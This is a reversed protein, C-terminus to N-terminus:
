RVQQRNLLEDIKAKGRSIKENPLPSAKDAATLNDMGYEKQLEGLPALSGQTVANSFVPKKDESTAQQLNQVGTLGLTFYRNSIRKLTEPTLNGLRESIALYKSIEPDYMAAKWRQMAAEKSQGKIFASAFQIGITSKSARGEGMARLRAAASAVSQGLVNEVKSFVNLNEDTASPLPVRRIIETWKSLLKIDELHKPTFVMQLSKEHDQLFDQLQQSDNVNVKDWVARRLGAAAEPAKDTANLLQQMLAPRKLVNDLVQEPNQKGSVVNDITKALFSNEVKERRLRLENQRMSIASNVQGIDEIRSKLEPFENLISDHLRMWTKYKGLDIVGDRVTAQRMSDLVSGELAQYAEADTGFTENFQRAASVAGPKFFESAVKEDPLAYFGGQNSKEVKELVGKEFRDIFDSKYRQRFQGYRSILDPDKESLSSEIFNDLDKQLVVLRRKKQGFGMREAQRISEGLEERYTKIDQFTVKNEPLVTEPPNIKAGFSDTGKRVSEGKFKNLIELEASPLSRAMAFLEGEKLDDKITKRWNIFEDTLDVESLNLQKALGRMEESVGRRLDDYRNRLIAGSGARDVEPLANAANERQGSAAGEAREIRDKISSLRGSAKDLIFEPDPSGQPALASKYRDIAAEQGQQQQLRAEVELPSMKAEVAQQTAKLGPSDTRNGLPANFEPFRKALDESEALSAKAAPTLESQLERAVSNQAIANVAPSLEDPGAVFYKSLPVKRRITDAREQSLKGATYQRSIEAGKKVVKPGPLVSAVGGAASPAFGGAIGALVQGTEGAGAERAVGAATGAAAASGIDGVAARLPSKASAMASEQLARKLAGGSAKGGANLLQSGTRLGAGMPVLTAGVEEGIRGALRQGPTDTPGEMLSDPLQDKLFESGGVPRDVIPGIGQEGPLLNGLMPAANILDVPAGLVNALGRNAGAFFARTKGFRAPAKEEGDLFADIDDQAAPADLFDDIEDRSKM